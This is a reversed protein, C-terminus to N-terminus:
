LSVMKSRVRLPPNNEKKKEVGENVMFNKEKVICTSAHYKKGGGVSPLIQTSSSPFSAKGDYFL